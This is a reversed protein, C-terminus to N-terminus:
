YITKLPRLTVMACKDVLAAHESCHLGYVTFVVKCWLKELLFFYIFVVAGYYETELIQQGNYDGQILHLILMCLESAM